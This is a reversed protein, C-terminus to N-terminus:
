RRRRAAGRQVVAQEAAKECVVGSRSASERRVPPAPVPSACRRGCVAKMELGMTKGGKMGRKKRATGGRAVECATGRAFAPATAAVALFETARPEPSSRETGVAVVNSSTARAHCGRRCCCAVGKEERHPPAQAAHRAQRARAAACRVAQFEVRACARRLERSM